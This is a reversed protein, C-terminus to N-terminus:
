GLILLDVVSHQRQHRKAELLRLRVLSDPASHSHEPAARSELIDDAGTQFLLSCRPYPLM